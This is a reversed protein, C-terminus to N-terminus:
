AANRHRIRDIVVIPAGLIIAVVSILAYGSVTSWVFSPGSLVAAVGILALSVIGGGLAFTGAFAIKEWNRNRSDSL